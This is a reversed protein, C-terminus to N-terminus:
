EGFARTPLVCFFLWLSFYIGDTTMFSIWHVTPLYHGASNEDNTVTFTCTEHTITNYCCKSVFLNIWFNVSIYVHRNIRDVRWIHENFFWRYTSNWKETIASQLESSCQPRVETMIMSSTKSKKHWFHWLQKIYFSCYCSFDEAKVQM